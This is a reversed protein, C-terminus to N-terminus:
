PLISVLKKNSINIPLKAKLQVLTSNFGEYKGLYWDFSQEKLQVLTSNFCEEM